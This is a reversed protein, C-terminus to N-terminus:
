YVYKIMIVTNYKMQRDITSRFQLGFNGDSPCVHVHMKKIKNKTKFGMIKLSESPWIWDRFKTFVHVYSNICRLLIYGKGNRSTIQLIRPNLITATIASIWPMVASCVMNLERIGFYCNADSGCFSAWGTSM